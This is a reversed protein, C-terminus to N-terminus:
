FDVKMDLLYQYAAIAQQPVVGNGLIKLQEARTLGIVPDTVWYAPLGMVWEAFEPNLQPRGNRNPATPNPASRTLREWRRIPATWRGYTGDDDRRDVAPITLAPTTGSALGAQHQRVSETDPSILIFLRERHHPAGIHSARLSTWRVHLGSAACDALVQDFGLTRHGAVNEMLTYRPRLARIAEIVYPWLHREDNTGQRRGNDSFPQCPYGGTLIDIPPMTAWDIQTVDRYNPVEPWHHALVKSPADDWECHWALESDPFLQLAAMDLMGAGSFLSGIRMGNPNVTTM